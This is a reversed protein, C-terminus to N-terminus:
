VLLLWFGQRPVHVGLHAAHLAHAAVVFAAVAVFLQHLCLDFQPLFDVAAVADHSPDAAPLDPARLFEAPSVRKATEAAAVAEFELVAHVDAEIVAPAIEAVLVQRPVAFAGRCEQKGSRFRELSHIGPYFRRGAIRLGM